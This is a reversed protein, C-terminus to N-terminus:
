DPDKLYTILAARQEPKKLGHFTICMGPVLHKPDALWQDLVEETWVFDEALLQESYDYDDLSAVQRDVIGALHPGFASSQGANTTHCASCRFFLKKGAAHADPTEGLAAPAALSLLAAILRTNIPQTM